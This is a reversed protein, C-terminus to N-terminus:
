SPFKWEEIGPLVIVRAVIIDEPAPFDYFTRMPKCGEAYRNMWPQMQPRPEDDDDGHWPCTIREALWQQCERCLQTAYGHRCPTPQCSRRTMRCAHCRIKRSM